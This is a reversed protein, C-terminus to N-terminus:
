YCAYEDYTGGPRTKYCSWGTAPFCPQGVYASACQPSPFTSTCPQTFIDICNEGSLVLHLTGGSSPSMPAEEATVQPDERPNQQRQELMDVGDDGEPNEM